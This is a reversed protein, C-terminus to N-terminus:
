DLWTKWETPGTRFSHLATFEFRQVDPEKSWSRGNLTSVTHFRLIPWNEPTTKGNRQAFFDGISRNQLGYELAM